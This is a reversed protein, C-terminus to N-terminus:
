EHDADQATGTPLLRVRALRKLAILDETPMQTLHAALPAWRESDPTTSAIKTPADDGFLKRRSEVARIAMLMAETDGTKVYKARAHAHVDRLQEDYEQRRTTADDDALQRRRKEYDREMTAKALGFYASLKHWSWGELAKKAYVFECREQRSMRQLQTKPDVKEPVTPAAPPPLSGKGGINVVFPVISPHEDVPQPSDSPSPVGPEGVPPDQPTETMSTM